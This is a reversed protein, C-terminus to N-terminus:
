KTSPSSPSAVEDRKTNEIYNKFYPSYSQYYSYWAIGEMLDSPYTLKVNIAMFWIFIGSFAISLVLLLGGKITPIIEFFASISLHIEGSVPLFSLPYIVTMLFLVLLVPILIMILSSSEPNSENEILFSQIERIHSNIQLTKEKIADPVQSSLKSEPSSNNQLREFYHPDRKDLDKLEELKVYIANLVETKSDYAYFGIQNYIDEPELGKFSIKYKKALEQFRVARYNKLYSEIDINKVAEVLDQARNFLSNLMRKKYTFESQSNIIKTFIFAAFLGIIAAASQALASYFWNWDPQTM